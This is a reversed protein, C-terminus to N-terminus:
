TPKGLICDGFNQYSALEAANDPIGEKGLPMFSDRAVQQGRFTRAWMNLTVHPGQEQLRPVQHNSM